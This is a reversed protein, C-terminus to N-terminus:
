HELHSIYTTAYAELWTVAKLRQRFSNENPLGEVMRDLQHHYSRDFHIREAQALALVIHEASQAAHYVANRSGILTQADQLDIWALRLQNAILREDSM